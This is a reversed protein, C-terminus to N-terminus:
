TADCMMPRARRAGAAPSRKWFRRRSTMTRIVSRACRLIRASPMCRTRGLGFGSVGCSSWCWRATPKALGLQPPARIRPLDSMTLTATAPRRLRLGRPSRRRFAPTVHTSPLCRSCSAAAASCARDCRGIPVGLIEAAADYSQDEVDVLTVASRFPEALRALADSLAPGLDLRTLLRRGRLGGRQARRGRLGSGRRGWRRAGGSAPVSGRGSSANRCITFLWRRADSGREFTHWSRYARLYTEQVIDDADAENRTLSSRVPVRRRALSAGRTRFQQRVRAARGPDVGM